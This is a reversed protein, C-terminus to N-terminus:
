VSRLKKILTFFNDVTLIPPAAFQALDQRTFHEGERHGQFDETLVIDTVKGNRVTVEVPPTNGLRNYEGYPWMKYAVVGSNSWRDQMRRLQELLTEGPRAGTTGTWQLSQAAIRATQGVPVREGAQPIAKDDFLATIQPLAERANMRRLAGIAAVRVMADENSLAKILPPIARPDGIEGLAWAANHNQEDGDLLPILVPIARPDRLTGILHVAYHRDDRIQYALAEPSRLWADRPNTSAGPGEEVPGTEIPPPHITRKASRDNLIGVLTDFGRRDGLKGFVWAVNGRVHRDDHALWPALPALDELKARSALKEGIEAQQWFVTERQFSSILDAVVPDTAANCSASVLALLCLLISNISNV